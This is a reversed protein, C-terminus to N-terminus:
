KFAGPEGDRAITSPKAPVPAPSLGSQESEQKPQQTPAKSSATAAASIAAPQSRGGTAAEPSLQGNTPQEAKTQEAAPRLQGMSRRQQELAAVKQTAEAQELRTTQLLVNQDELRKQHRARSATWEAVKEEAQQLDEKLEGEDKEKEVLKKALHEQQALAARLQVNVAEIASQRQTELDAEWLGLLYSPVMIKSPYLRRLEQQMKIQESIPDVAAAEQPQNKETTETASANGTSDAKQAPGDSGECHPQSGASTPFATKCLCHTFPREVWKWGGFPCTSSLCWIKEQHKTKKAPPLGGAVALQRKVTGKSPPQKRTRVGSSFSPPGDEQTPPVARLDPQRQSKGLSQGKRQSKGGEAGKDKGKVKASKSWPPLGYSKGKGKDKVTQTQIPMSNVSAPEHRGGQGKGPSM